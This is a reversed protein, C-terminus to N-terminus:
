LKYSLGCNFLGKFGLGFEAFATVARGGFRMGFGAYGNVSSSCEGDPLSSIGNHFSANYNDQDFKFYKDTHSFGLALSSYFLLGKKKMIAFTCEPALAWVRMKYTGGRWLGPASYDGQIGGKLFEVGAALGLALRNSFFYKYDFTLAGHPTPIDLKDHQGYLLLAGIDTLTGLGYSLRIDHKNKEQPPPRRKIKEARMMTRKAEHEEWHMRRQQQRKQREEKTPKRYNVDDEDRFRQAHTIGPLLLLLLLLTYPRL